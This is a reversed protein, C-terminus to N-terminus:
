KKIEGYILCLGKLILDTDIHGINKCYPTFFTAMGGTAVVIMKGPYKAKINDIIGDCLCAFGYAVGSRMSEVTDKGILSKPRKLEMKPLLATKESLAELSIKAGPTILGGCYAGNRDIYDFTIATGFDVVVAPKGYLKLCAYANVLRDQGVQEPKHYLNKIPVKIDKGLLIPRISFYKNFIDTLVKSANPVVSSIIVAEITEGKRTFPNIGKDIKSYIKAKSIRTQFRLRRLLRTRKGINYLGIVINTNGIDIAVLM